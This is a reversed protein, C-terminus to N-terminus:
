LKRELRELVDTLRELTPNLTVEGKLQESTTGLGAYLYKVIIETLTQKEGKEKAQLRENELAKYLDIPLRVGVQKNKEIELETDNAM